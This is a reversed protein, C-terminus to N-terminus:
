IKKVIIQQYLINYMAQLYASLSEGIDPEAPRYLSQITNSNPAEIKKRENKDQCSDL